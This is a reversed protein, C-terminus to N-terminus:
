VRKRLPFRSQALLWQAFSEVKLPNANSTRLYHIIGGELRAISDIKRLEDTLESLASPSVTVRHLRSQQFDASDPEYNEIGEPDSVSPLISNILGIIDTAEDM